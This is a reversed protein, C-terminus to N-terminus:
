VHEIRCVPCYLDWLKGGCNSCTNTAPILSDIKAEVRAMRDALNGTSPLNLKIELTFVFDSLM